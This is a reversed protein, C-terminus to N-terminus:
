NKLYYTTHPYIGSIEQWSGDSPTWKLKRMQRMFDDQTLMLISLGLAYVKNIVFDVNKLTQYDPNNFETEFNCLNFFPMNYKTVLLSFLAQDDVQSGCAVDMDMMLQTWEQIFEINKPTKKFAFFNNQFHPAFWYRPIDVDLDKFTKTSVVLNDVNTIGCLAVGPFSDIGLKDLFNVFDGISEQIGNVFYKSSDVWVIWDGDNSSSMTDNVIVPKFFACSPRRHLGIYNWQPMYQPFREMLTQPNWGEIIDISKNQQTKLINKQSNAFPEKDAYTVLITKPRLKENEKEINNQSSATYHFTACLHLPLVLLMCILSRQM